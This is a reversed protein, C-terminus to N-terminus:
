SDTKVLKVATGYAMLESAGQTVSATALRVCVIADAGMEQAEQKMRTLADERGEILLESYSKLEGGVINKFFAGIDKGIHKARVTSGNVLGLTETIQYGAVQDTTVLIM